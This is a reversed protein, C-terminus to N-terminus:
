ICNTQHTHRSWWDGTIAVASGPAVGFTIKNGDVSYGKYYQIDNKNDNNIPLGYISSSSILILFIIFLTNKLKM